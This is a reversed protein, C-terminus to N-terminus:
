TAAAERFNAYRNRYGPGLPDMLGAQERRAWFEEKFIERQHPETLQIFLDREDELIIPAVYEELWKKDDAPLAAIKAAREKASLKPISRAAATSTGLMALTTALAAVVFLSVTRSKM